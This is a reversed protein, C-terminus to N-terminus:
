NRLRSRVRGLWFLFGAAALTVVSPEPIANLVVNDLAVYTNPADAAGAIWPAMGFRIGTLSAGNLPHTWVPNGDIAVSWVDAESDLSVGIHYVKDNTFPTLIQNIFPSTQYAYISDLGGHFSLSHIGAMDFHLVFAYDSALLNHAMLDYQLDYRPGVLAIPLRIQEGGVGAHVALVDQLPGASALLTPHGSVVEYTGTEGGSFDLNFLESGVLNGSSILAVVLWAIMCKATLLDHRAMRNLYNANRVNTFWVRKVHRCSNKTQSKRMTSAMDSYWIFDTAWFSQAALLCFGRVFSDEPLCGFM